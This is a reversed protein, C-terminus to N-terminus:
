FKVRSSTGKKSKPQWFFVFGLVIVVLSGFFILAGGQSSIFDQIMSLGWILFVGVLIMGTFLKTPSAIGFKQLLMLAKSLYVFGLIGLALVIVGILTWITFNPLLLQGITPFIGM